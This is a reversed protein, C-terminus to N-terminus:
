EDIGWLLLLIIIIAFTEFWEITILWVMLVLLLCKLYSFDSTIFKLIVLWILFSVTLHLVVVFYAHELLTM